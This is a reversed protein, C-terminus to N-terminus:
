RAVKDSRSSPGTAAARRCRRGPRQRHQVLSCRAICSPWQRPRMGAILLPRRPAAAELADWAGDRLEHRMGLRWDGIGLGWDGIGLGWDGIGLGWDGIEFGPGIAM